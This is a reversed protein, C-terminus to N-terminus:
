FAEKKTEKKRREKMKKEVQRRQVHETGHLRATNCCM